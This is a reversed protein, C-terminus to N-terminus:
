NNTLSMVDNKIEIGDKILPKILNISEKAKSFLSIKPITDTVLTKLKIMKPKLGIQKFYINLYFMFTEPKINITYGSAKELLYTIGDIKYPDNIIDSDYFDKLNSLKLTTIKNETVSNYYLNYNNNYIEYENKILNVKIIGHELSAYQFLDFNYGYTKKLEDFFMKNNGVTVYFININGRIKNDVDKAKHGLVIVQTNIHRGYTFLESMDTQNIYNGLDDLVLIKNKFADMNKLYKLDNIGYVNNYGEWETNDKCFIICEKDRVYRSIFYTKGTGSKGYMMFHNNRGSIIREENMLEILNVADKEEEDKLITYGKTKTFEVADNVNSKINKIPLSSIDFINYRHIYYYGILCLCGIIILFVCTVSSTIHTYITNGIGEKSSQYNRNM